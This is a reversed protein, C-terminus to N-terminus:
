YLSESRAQVTRPDSEPPLPRSKGRGDLGARPGLWGRICHTGPIKGRPLAAPAHRQGDVGMYLRPRLFLLAICRSGRQTKTARELAVKVKIVKHKRAFFICLTSLSSTVYYKTYKRQYHCLFSRFMAPFIFLSLIWKIYVFKPIIEKWDLGNNVISRVLKLNCSTVFVVIVM